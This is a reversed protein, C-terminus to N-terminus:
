IATGNRQHNDHKKGGQNLDDDELVKNVELGTILKSRDLVGECRECSYLDLEQLFEVPIFHKRCYYREDM